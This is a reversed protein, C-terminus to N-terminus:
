DKILKKFSKRLASKDFSRMCKSHSCDYRNCNACSLSTIVSNVGPDQGLINLPDTPGWLSVIPINLHQAIHMIASDICVCGASISTLAFVEKWSLKGQLSTIRSHKIVEEGSGGLHLFQLSKNNLLPKIIDVVDEPRISKANTNGSMTHLIIFRSFGKTALHEVKLWANHADYKDIMIPSRPAAADLGSIMSYAGIKGDPLYNGCLSNIKKFEISPLKGAIEDRRGVVRINSFGHMLHLAEIRSFEMLVTFAKSPHARSVELVVDAQDLYDGMGGEFEFLIKKYNSLIFQAEQSALLLASDVGDKTILRPASSGSALKVIWDGPNIPFAGPVYFFKMGVSEQMGILSNLDRRSKIYRNPLVERIDGTDSYYIITNFQSGLAM